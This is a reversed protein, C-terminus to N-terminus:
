PHYEVSRRQSAMSMYWTQGIIGASLMAMIYANGGASVFPLPLGKTPLLGVVMGLNVITNGMLLFTLGSAVLRYARESCASIVIFCSFFFLLFLTVLVFIGILGTEEGIVAVIFDTHAEPLFFLKQSSNGLGRGLWSGAALAQFSQIIQFGAGLPDAFPDLFTILRQVRYPAMLLLGAILPVGLAAGFLFYRVALGHVFLMGALCLGIVATSGFDPQFLLVPLGAMALVLYLPQDPRKELIRAAFLVAAVKLFEAPQLTFGPLQLWRAAGNVEHGFPPLLTAVCLLTAGTYLLGSYQILARLNITLGFLAAFLGILMSIGHKRVFYLSDAFNEAAYITSSSYVFLLGLASLAFVPLWLSQGGIAALSRSKMVEFLFLRMKASTQSPLHSKAANQM